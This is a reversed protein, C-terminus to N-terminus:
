VGFQACHDRGNYYAILVKVNHATWMGYPASGNNYAPVYSWNSYFQKKGYNAVCHGATVAIGRKILSASCIFSDTGINFFLKGAARFPYYKVTFDGAANVRSTTYPQNATGFEEPEAGSEPQIKQPPLLEVPSEGGSGVGGASVAPTGFLLLPDPAKRIAESQSPPLIRSLPLPMPKANAFDIRPATQSAESPSTLTTVRGNQTVQAPAATAAACAFATLALIAIGTKLM